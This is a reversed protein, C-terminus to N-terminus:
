GRSCRPPISTPGTPSCCSTTATSVRVARARRPDIVLAGYLGAQEQFASHSHYWYTGGQRVDFRYHYRRAASPHRQLEPGARRGHQGAAPHRALSDLDRPRPHFARAVRQSVRLTSRTGERWRLMPAPLSGNVTIATRTRGTFNVPTEGISWTSSPAPSCTPNGPSKLAWSPRPWLGLGAVAGGAALGQVFRRRSPRPLADPATGFPDFSM